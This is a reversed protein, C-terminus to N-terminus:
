QKSYTVFYNALLQGVGQVNFNYNPFPVHIPCIYPAQDFATPDTFNWGRILTGPFLAYGIVGINKSRLYSLFQPVVKPADPMCGRSISREYYSWEDAEV